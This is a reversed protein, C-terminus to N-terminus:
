KKTKGFRWIREIGCVVLFLFVGWAAAIVVAGAPSVYWTKDHYPFPLGFTASFPIGLVAWLTMRLDVSPVLSLAILAIPLIYKTYKM